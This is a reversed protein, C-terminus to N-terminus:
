IRASIGWRSFFSPALISGVLSGPAPPSIAMLRASWAGGSPNVDQEDACLRQHGRLERVRGAEIIVDALEGPERPHAAFRLHRQEPGLRRVIGDEVQHLALPRDRPCTGALDVAIGIEGGDLGVREA